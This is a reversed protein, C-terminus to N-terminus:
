AITAPAPPVAPSKALPATNACVPEDAPLRDGTVVPAALAELPVNVILVAFTFLPFAIRTNASADSVSSM